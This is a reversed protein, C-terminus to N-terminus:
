SLLRKVREAVKVKGEVQRADGAVVAGMKSEGNRM